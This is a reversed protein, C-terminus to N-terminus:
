VLTELLKVNSINRRMKEFNDQKSKIFPLIMKQFMKRMREDDFWRSSLVRRMDYRMMGNKVLLQGILKRCSSTMHKWNQHYFQLKESLLKRRITDSDDLHNIQFPLEKSVCKYLMMGLSWVDVTPTCIFNRDVQLKTLLEPASYCPTGDLPIDTCSSLTNIAAGFDTVKAVTYMQRTLLLINEPKLDFHIINKSHLYCAASAIQFFIMKISLEKPLRQHKIYDCLSGGQALEFMMFIYNNTDIVDYLQIVFPHSLSKLERIESYINTYLRLRKPAIKLACVFDHQKSKATFVKGFGGGGLLSGIKYNDFITSSSDGFHLFLFSNTKLEGKIDIVCFPKLGIIKKTVKLSDVCVVSKLDRELLIKCGRRRFCRRINIETQQDPFRITTSNKHLKVIWPTTNLSLLSGWYSKSTSECPAQSVM